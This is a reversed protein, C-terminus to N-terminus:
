NEEREGEGEGACQESELKTWTPYKSFLSYKQWVTVNTNPLMNTDM